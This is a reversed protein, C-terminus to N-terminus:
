SHWSAQGVCTLLIVVRVSVSVTSLLVLSVRIILILVVLHIHLYLHLHLLPILCLCSISLQWINVSQWIDVFYIISHLSAVAALPQLGAAAPLEHCAVVDNRLIVILPVHGLHHLILLLDLL